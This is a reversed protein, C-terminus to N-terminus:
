VNSQFNKGWNPDNKRKRIISRAKNKMLEYMNDCKDAWFMDKAYESNAQLFKLKEKVMDSLQKIDNFMEFSMDKDTRHLIDNTDLICSEIIDCAMFLTIALENVKEIDSPPIGCSKLDLREAEQETLEIYAQVVKSYLYEIKKAMELAGLYDGKRKMLDQQVRLNVVQPDNDFSARMQAMLSAPIDKVDLM